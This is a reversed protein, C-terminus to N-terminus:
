EVDITGNDDTMKRRDHITPGRTTSGDPGRTTSGDTRSDDNPTALHPLFNFTNAGARGGARARARAWITNYVCSFTTRLGRTTYTGGGRQTAATNGCNTIGSGVPGGQPLLLRSGQGEHSVRAPRILPPPFCARAAGAGEEANRHKLGHQWRGLSPYREIIVVDHNDNDDRRRQGVVLALPLVQLALWPRPTLARPPYM